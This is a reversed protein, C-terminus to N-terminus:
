ITLSEMDESLESPTPMTMLGADLERENLFQSMEEATMEALYPFVDPQRQRFERLLATVAPYSMYSSIGIRLM